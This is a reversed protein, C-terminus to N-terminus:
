RGTQRAPNLLKSMRQMEGEITQQLSALDPGQLRLKALAEPLPEHQRTACPDGIGMALVIQDAIHLLATLHGDERIHHPDHHHRAARRLELPLGWTESVIGAAAAHDLGLVRREVELPDNEPDQLEKAAKALLEPDLVQVMAIRGVNHLIGVTFATAPRAYGVREAITQCATSCALTQHWLESPDAYPNNPLDKFYSETCSVLVLKVLNRTGIFAVADQVSTIPNALGFLSSNCLKLIRTTLSPDTRVVAVLQDISFEPDRVIHLIRAAVAPLPPMERLSRMIHVLTQMSNGPRDGM